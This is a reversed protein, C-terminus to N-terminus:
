EDDDSWGEDGWGDDEDEDDSNEQGVVEDKVTDSEQQLPVVVDVDVGSSFSDGQSSLKEVEDAAEARLRAIENEYRLKQNALEAELVNATKKFEEVKNEMELQNIESANSQSRLNDIEAQAQVKTEELFNQTSLLESNLAEVQQTFAAKSMSLHSQLSAITENAQVLALDVESANNEQSSKVSQLEIQLRASDAEAAKLAARMSSITAEMEELYTGNQASEQDKSAQLSAITNNSEDLEMQLSEITTKADGIAVLLSAIEDDKMSQMTALEKKTNDLDLQLSQVNMEAEELATSSMNANTGQAALKAELESQLSSILNRSDELDSQLSSISEYAEEAAIRNQNAEVDRSAQLSSVLANSEELEKRVAALEDKMAEANQTTAMADKAQAQLSAITENANAQTQAIHDFMEKRQEIEERLLSIQKEYRIQQQEFEQAADNKASELDAQLSTITELAESLMENDTADEEDQLGQAQSLTAKLNDLQQEKETLVARLQEMEASQANLRDAFQNNEANDERAEDLSAKIAALESDKEFLLLKLKEVEESHRGASLHETDNSNMDKDQLKQNQLDVTNQLEEKMQLANALEERLKDLEPEKTQVAPTSTTTPADDFVVEESVESEDDLEEDEDSLDDDDDDSGWGFDDDEEEEEEEGNEDEEEYESGSGNESDEVATNMVFPPRVGGFLAGFGTSPAEVAVVKDEGANTLARQKAELEAQYKEYISAEKQDVEKRKIANFAGGFLNQVTQKGKDLLEQRQKRLRGEEENMEAQIRDPDCRYYYRQWFQEYTVVMPVLNQFHVGVTDAYEELVMAIDDTQQDIHFTSLFELIAPDQEVDGHQDQDQAKEETQGADDAPADLTGAEKEMDKLDVTVDEVKEENDEEEDDLLADDGADDGWGDEVVADKPGNVDSSDHKESANESNVADSGTGADVEAQSNASDDPYSEVESKRKAGNFENVLLPATYTEEMDMRALAEEEAESSYEAHDEDEDGDTDNLRPDLMGGSSGDANPNGDSKSLVSAAVPNVIKEEVENRIVTTDSAISSAFEKFDSRLAGWM